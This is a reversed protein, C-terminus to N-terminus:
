YGDHRFRNQGNQELAFKRFSKMKDLSQKLGKSKQKSIRITFSYRVPAIIASLDCYRTGLNNIVRRRPFHLVNLKPPGTAM